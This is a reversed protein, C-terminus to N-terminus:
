ATPFTLQFEAGPDRNVVDVKGSMAVTLQRVIALGIGTGVTERTLGSESRYFLRFIKKLQGKPIGPGYDRVTFSVRRDSGLHSGIEIRRIQAGRSFKIGNDVLNIVIQAFCDADINLIAADADGDCYYALEFGASQVQSDIKSRIQDILTAVSILKCDFQPENRTIRSLQLVNSILRTLRESEDHIYEYYQKRKAEDAWGERLMEGYMRISTLPTKLEHSVASVFDQQQRALQIQGLGLRYLALFGAIFVLAIVITTWGLVAAGPGPPMRNISYVLELRDFPASLRNRYLLAGDMEGASPLSRQYRDGRVVDIIDDQYGVILDSMASLSTAQFASDIVALSFRNQDILLGQIYRSGEHWVNRFLVFHGSGLLSFQYPDVESQFTHIITSEAPPGAAAPPIRENTRRERATDAELKDKREASAGVQRDLDANRKQLADDLKLDELKGYSQARSPAEVSTAFTDGAAQMKEAVAPAAAQNLQDFGAQAPAPGPIDEDRTASAVVRGAAPQSRLVRLSAMEAEPEAEGTEGPLREEVAPKGPRGGAFLRADVLRNDALIQRLQGALVRRERLDEDSLGTDEAPLDDDPLLPTSFNGQPDVQFYGIVGPIDEPLPLASLPSRQALKSGPIVNLFAFDNFGRADAVAIRRGLSEDIRATLEEAQGRFQYWSEWKLQGYAQWTLAATPLVLAVFLGCLLARLRREDYGKFLTAPLM